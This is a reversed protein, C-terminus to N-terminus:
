RQERQAVYYVVVTGLVWGAIAGVVQAWPEIGLRTDIEHGIWWTGIVIAVFAAAVSLGYSAQAMGKSMSSGLSEKPGPPKNMAVIAAGNATTILM